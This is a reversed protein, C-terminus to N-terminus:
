EKVKNKLGQWIEYLNRKDKLNADNDYIYQLYDIFNDVTDNEKYLELVETITKHKFVGKRFEYQNNRNIFFWESTTGKTAIHYIHRQIPNFRM